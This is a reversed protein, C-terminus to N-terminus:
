SGDDDGIVRRLDSARRELLDKQLVPLRKLRLHEETENLLDRFVETQMADTVVNGCKEPVCAALVPLPSEATTCLAKMPDFRCHNVAGLHLEAAVSRLLAALEANGAVAVALQEVPLDASDDDYRVDMRDFTETLVNQLKRGAPGGLDAEGAWVGAALGLVTELGDVAQRNVLLDKWHGKVDNNMYSWTVAHSAHQFQTYLAVDGLAATNGIAALTHRFAHPNVADGESTSRKGWKAAAPIRWDFKLPNDNNITVIFRHLSSTLLVDAREDGSDDSGDSAEEAAADSQGVTRLKLRSALLTEAGDPVTKQLLECAKVVPDTAWWKHPEGDATKILPSSIAPYGWWTTRWGEAPIALAESSRMGTFAMVVMACADRLLAVENDIANWCFPERWPGHSGDPLEVDSVALPLMGPKLPLGEDVRARLWKKASGNSKLGPNDLMAAMTQIALSGKRGDNKGSDVTYSPLAGHEQVFLHLEWILPGGIGVKRAPHDAPLRKPLKEYAGREWRALLDKKWQHAAVIDEGFQEVYALAVKMLASFVAPELGHGIHVEPRKAGAWEYVSRGRLPDRDPGGLTLQDRYVHLRSVVTGVAAHPYHQHAWEGLVDSDQITWEAPMGLGLEAAAKELQVCAQLTTRLSSARTTSRLGTRKTLQTRLVDKGRGQLWILERAILSWEPSLATFDLTRKTKPRVDLGTVDWRLDGFRPLPVDPTSWHASPVSVQYGDVLNSALRQDDEGVLPRVQATQVSM